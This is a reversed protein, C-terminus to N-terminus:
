RRSRRSVYAILRKIFGKTKSTPRREEDFGYSRKQMGGDRVMDKLIPYFRAVIQESDFHEKAFRQGAMGVKRCLEKDLTREMVDAWEHASDTLTLFANEESKLSEGFGCGFTFVPKGVAMAKVLRSPLRYENFEDSFGPACIVDAAMMMGLYEKDEPIGMSRFYVAGKLRRKAESALGSRSRGSIVLALPGTVRKKLLLLADIFVSFEPTFDYVTGNIFFVHASAPIKYRSLMESKNDESSEAEVFDTMRIFPPIVFTPKEFRRELREVIPFWIGTHMEALRYCIIRLLPDVWRYHSPFLLVRMTFALNLRGMFSLVDRFSVKPKDLMELLAMDAHPYHRRYPVFEDDEAQVIFHARTMLFAELAARMSKTRVGVQFIVNPSFERIASAIHDGLLAGNFELKMWRVGESVPPCSGESLVLARGGCREIERALEQLYYGSGGFRPSPHVLLMRIDLEAQRDQQSPAVLPAFTRALSDQSSGIRHLYSFLFEHLYALCKVHEGDTLSPAVILKEIASELSGHDLLSVGFGHQAYFAVGLTLVNKGKSLMELGAQSNITVGCNCEDMLSYVNLDNAGGVIRVNRYHQAINAVRDQYEKKDGPHLKVLVNVDMDRCVDFVHRYADIAGKFFPNDMNVVTDKYCQALLLINLKSEDILEKKQARSIGPPPQVSSKGYYNNAVWARVAKLEEDSKPPVILHAGAMSHRNGIVGSDDCYFRQKDFSFEIAYCPLDHEFCFDRVVRSEFFMGGWIVAGVIDSVEAFVSSVFKRYEVYRGIVRWKVDKGDRSYLCDPNEYAINGLCEQYVSIGDLRYDEVNGSEAKLGDFTDSYSFPIHYDSFGENCGIVCVELGVAKLAEAVERKVSAGHQQVNDMLVIKRSM